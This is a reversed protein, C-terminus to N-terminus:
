ALVNQPHKLRDLFMLVLPGDALSINKVVGAGELVADRLESQARLRPLLERLLHHRHLSPEPRRAPTM